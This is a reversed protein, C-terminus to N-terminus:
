ELYELTAIIQGLEARIRKLEDLMTPPTIFYRRPKNGDHQLELRQLSKYATSLPIEAQETIELVTLPESGNLLDYVTKDTNFNTM